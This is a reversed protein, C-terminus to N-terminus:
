RRALRRRMCRRLRRVFSRVPHPRYKRELRRRFWTLRLAVLKGPLSGTLELIMSLTSLFLLLALVGFSVSFASSLEFRRVLNFGLLGFCISLLNLLGFYILLRLTRREDPGIVKLRQLELRLPEQVEQQKPGDPKAVVGRAIAKVKPAPLLAMLNPKWEDKGVSALLGRLNRESDQRKGNLSQLRYLGLAGIFALLAACTQALTSLAYLLTTKDV